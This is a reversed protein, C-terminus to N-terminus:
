DEEPLEAGPRGLGLKEYREPSKPGVYEIEVVQEEERLRWAPRYKAGLHLRYHGSHGALEKSRPPRPDSILNAIQPRAIAKVHGPLDWTLNEYFM